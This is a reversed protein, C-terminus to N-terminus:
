EHHLGGDGGHLADLLSNYKYVAAYISSPSTMFLPSKVIPKQKVLYIMKPGGQISKRMRKKREKQCQDGSVNNTCDHDQAPGLMATGCFTSVLPFFHTSQSSQNCDNESAPFVDSQSASHSSMAPMSKHRKAIIDLHQADWCVHSTVSRALTVRHRWCVDLAM